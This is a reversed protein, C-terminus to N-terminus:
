HMDLSVLECSINDIINYREYLRNIIPPEVPIINPYNTSNIYTVHSKNHQQVSENHRIM